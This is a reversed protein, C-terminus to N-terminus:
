ATPCSNRSRCPPPASRPRRCRREQGRYESEGDLHRHARDRGACLGTRCLRRHGGHHTPAERQRRASRRDRGALPVGVPSKAWGATRVILGVHFRDGPRYIGRDSFLYGSLEGASAANVDGGIDFRSYDLRRDMDEIPLFSLDEGQRVLYMVPRKERALGKLTPFHVMGDATTTESFLTQGNLALISVTAGSVPRGTRISQVFVDRSGDLARKALLGLDTVM